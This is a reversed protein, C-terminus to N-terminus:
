TILRRIFEVEVILGPLFHQFLSVLGMIGAIQAPTYIRALQHSNITVPFPMDQHVFSVSQKLLKSKLITYEDNGIYPKLYHWAVELFQPYRALARFDSAVDYSHHERAIDLLLQKLYFPASPIHILEIHPMSKFVGPEIQGLNEKQPIIPRNGLGESWASAILLLKPNVYQFAAIVNKIHQLTQPNYANTFDFAPVQTRINPFRLRNSASEMNVTLMNPRIQQWAYTLFEPYHALARFMFNVIPVKLVYKIDEYVEKVVGHAESEVVEPIGYQNM